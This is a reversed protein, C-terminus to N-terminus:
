KHTYNLALQGDMASHLPYSSMVLLGPHPGSSTTAIPMHGVRQGMMSLAASLRTRFDMQQAESTTTFTKCLELPKQAVNVGAGKLLRFVALAAPM